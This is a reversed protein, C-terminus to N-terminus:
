WAGFPFTLRARKNKSTNPSTSRDVDKNTLLEDDDNDLTIILENESM